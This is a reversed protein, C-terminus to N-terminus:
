LQRIKIEDSAIHLKHGDELAVMAEPRAAINEDSGLTVQQQLQEEEQSGRDIRQLSSTTSAPNLNEYPQRVPEDIGTDVRKDMAAEVNAPMLSEQYLDDMGEVSRKYQENHAMMGVQEEMVLIHESCVAVRERQDATERSVKELIKRLAANEDKQEAMDHKLQKYDKYIEPSVDEQVGEVKEILDQMLNDTEARM